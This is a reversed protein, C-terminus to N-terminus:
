DLRQFSYVDVGGKGGKRDSSIFGFNDDKNIFINYDNWRSNIPAGFREPKVWTKQKSLSTWLIDFGGMGGHGNSSFYFKGTAYHIFPFVEDGKTNIMAGLNKPASWDGDEYSVYYLDMGGFGGPMDSSFYIRQGDESFAPHTLTYEDMNYDFPLHYGWASRQKQATFLKFPILNPHNKGCEKRDYKMYIAQQEDYSVSLSTARSAASLARYKRAKKALTYTNELGSTLKVQIFDLSFPEYVPVYWNYVKGTKGQSFVLSGNPLIVPSFDDKKSNFSINELQFADLFDENYKEITDILCSKMYAEGRRDNSDLEMFLKFWDMAIEHKGNTQLAQAYYLVDDANPKQADLVLKGYSWEVDHWQDLLRYCEAISKMTNKNNPRKKLVKKYLYVATEYLHKKYARNAYEMKSSQGVSLIPITLLLITIIRKMKTTNTQSHARESSKNTNM